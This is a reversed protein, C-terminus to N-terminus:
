TNAQEALGERFQFKILGQPFRTEGGANLALLLRLSLPKDAALGGILGELLSRVEERQVMIPVPLQYNARQADEPTLMAQPDAGVIARRVESYAILADIIANHRADMVLFNAVDDSGLLSIAMAKEDTSFVVRDPTNAMPRLYVWTDPPARLAAACQRQAEAVTKEITFMNNAIEALRIQASIAVGRDRRERDATTARAERRFNTAQLAWSVIGGISAGVVAGILGSVLESNLVGKEAVDGLVLVTNMM